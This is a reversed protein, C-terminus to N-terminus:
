LRYSCKEIFDLLVLTIVKRRAAHDTVHNLFVETARLFRMPDLSAFRNSQHFHYNINNTKDGHTERTGSASSIFPTINTLCSLTLDNKENGQVLAQLLVGTHGSLLNRTVM